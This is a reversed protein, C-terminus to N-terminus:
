HLTLCIQKILHEMDGSKIRQLHRFIETNKLGSIKTFKLKNKSGGNTLKLTNKKQQHKRQIGVLANGKMKTMGLRKRQQRRCSM